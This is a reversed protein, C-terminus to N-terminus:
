GSPSDIILYPKEILNIKNNVSLLKIPNPYKKSTYVLKQKQLDLTLIQSDMFLFNENIESIVFVLHNENIWKVDTLEFSNSIIDFESKIKQDHLSYSYFRSKDNEKKSFYLKSGSPSFFLNVETVSSDILKLIKNELDYMMLKKDLDLSSPEPITINGMSCLFAIRKGDPTFIANYFKYNALNLIPAINKFTIVNNKESLYLGPVIGYMKSYSSDLFINECPSWQMHEGSLEGDGKPSLKEKNKIDFIRIANFEFGIYELLLYNSDFSWKIKNIFVRSYKDQQNESQNKELLVENYTIRDKLILNNPAVLALMREDPSLEIKPQTNANQFNLYEFEKKENGNLINKDFVIIKDNENRTLLFHHEYGYNLTEGQPLNIVWSENRNTKSIPKKENNTSTVQKKPNFKLFLFVLSSFLIFIILIKLVNILRVNSSLKKNEDM